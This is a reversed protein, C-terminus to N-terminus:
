LKRPKNVNELQQEVNVHSKTKRVQPTVSSKRQCSRRKGKLNKEPKKVLILKM